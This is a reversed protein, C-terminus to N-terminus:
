GNQNQHEKLAEQFEAMNKLHEALDPNATEDDEESEPIMLYEQLIVERAQLRAMNLRGVKELYTEGAQDPGALRRELEPLAAEAQAGVETFFAEPDEIGAYRAPDNEAWIKQAQKGYENM